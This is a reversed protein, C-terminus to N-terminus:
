ADWLENVRTIVRIHPRTNTGFVFEEDSEEDVVAWAQIDTDECGPCKDTVNLLQGTITIEVVDGESPEYTDPIDLGEVLKERFNWLAAAGPDEQSRNGAMVEIQMALRDRINREHRELVAEIAKALADTSLGGNLSMQMNYTEVGAQIVDPAVTM